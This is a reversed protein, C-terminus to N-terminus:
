NAAEKVKFRRETDSLNWVVARAIILVIRM